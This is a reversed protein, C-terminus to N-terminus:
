NTGNTVATIFENGVLTKDPHLLWYPPASNATTSTSLTYKTGSGTLYLTYVLGGGAFAARGSALCYRGLATSAVGTAKAYIGNAFSNAGTAACGYNSNSVASDAGVGKIFPTNDLQTKYSDTFDNTSLGKGEIKNVKNGIASNLTDV